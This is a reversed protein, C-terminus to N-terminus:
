KGQLRAQIAKELEPPPGLTLAKRYYQVAVAARRAERHLEGMYFLVFVEIDAPPKEQLLQEWVAAADARKGTTYQALGLHYAVRPEKTADPYAARVSEYLALARAPDGQLHLDALRVRAWLLPLFLRDEYLEPRMEEEGKANIYNWHGRARHGKRPVDEPRVPYDWYKLDPAAHERPAIKWLMGAPVVVLGERLFERNPQLDSFVAPVRPINENAFASIAVMDWGAKGKVRRLVEYAPIALGKRESIRKDLWDEGLLTSSLPLVDTREGPLGQLYRCVGLPDDRSLFLVSGPDLNKMLLRAYQEAWVYGKQSLMPINVAALTVCAAAIAGVVTRVGREQLAALGVAVALSMPIFVFVLWQDFQGEGQFVLTVFLVPVVWGALLGASPRHRRILIWAGLVLPVLAVLYEEATYRLAAVWRWASFGFAGEQKTFREGSIFAILDRITRPDAFDALSERAAFSLILLCPLFACAAALLVIGAFFAWGWERILSRRAWGYLLLGPVLLAAAPHAAWSLGLVAGLAVFERKREARVLLWLLLALLAYSLAYTKAIIAAHGYCYGAALICGAGIAPVDASPGRSPDLRRLFDRAALATFAAGFAAMWSSFLNVALAFGLVPAAILTWGKCLVLYLAFGHPYLVSMDRVATLYYGSDQWYAYPGVTCASLILSFVFPIGPVAGRKM